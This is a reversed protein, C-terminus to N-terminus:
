GIVGKEKNEHVGMKLGNMAEAGYRCDMLRTIKHRKNFEQRNENETDRIRQNAKYKMERKRRLKEEKEETLKKITKMVNEKGHEIMLNWVLQRRDQQTENRMAEILQVHDIDVDDDDEVINDWKSYDIGESMM